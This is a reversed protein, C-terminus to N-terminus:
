LCQYARLMCSAHCVRKLQIIIQRNIVTKGRYPSGFYVSYVFSIENSKLSSHLVNRYKILNLNHLNGRNQLYYQTGRDM